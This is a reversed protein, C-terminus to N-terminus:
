LISVYTSHCGGWDGTGKRNKTEETVEEMRQGKGGEGWPRDTFRRGLKGRRRKHNETQGRLHHHNDPPTLTTSQPPTPTGDPQPHQSRSSCYGNEPDKSIGNNKNNPSKWWPLGMLILRPGAPSPASGPPTTGAHTHKHTHAQTHTQPFHHTPGAPHYVLSLCPQM